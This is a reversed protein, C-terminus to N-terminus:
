ILLGCRIVLAQYTAPAAFHQLSANKIHKGYLIRSGFAL